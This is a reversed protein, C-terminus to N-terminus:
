EITTEYWFVSENVVNVTRVRISSLEHIFLRIRANEIFYDRNLGHFNLYFLHPSM